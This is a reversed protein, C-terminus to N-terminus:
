QGKSGWRGLEEVAHRLARAATEVDRVNIAEEETHALKPDGPGFAAINKTLSILLNFDATGYKRSLKPEVGVKLLGRVLARAAPNTPSAEAPDVCSRVRAPLGKLREELEACNHGPPIRVDLVAVCEVPVKNPADGCRVVTPTVTFDEYREGHKLAEKARVYVAYLEEFPNGYIPSSAHGGKTSLRLEVKGGGRYAYAVHLDTPEGVYVYDPRPPGGRLLEETGASDDEEATVLALVLTGSPRASAFAGVYAVLPGKDDVAGRGRVVDGEDRVELPGVVTDMHAHLWTVPAGKGRVAVVNGAGDIWAEDAIERVVGLLFRALEAEGHSPSYISLVRLLLSKLDM